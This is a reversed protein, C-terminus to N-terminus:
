TEQERHMTGRRSPATRPRPVYRASRRALWRVLSVSAMGLRSAAASISRSTKIAIVRQLATEVKPLTLEPLQSVWELDQETLCDRFAGWVDITDDACERIIRTLESQRTELPPIDIPVVGMPFPERASGDVCILLQVGSDPEQFARLAEPFNKPLRKARVCLTGGLTVHFADMSDKYNAPSRVSGRTNERRPDSVAFPASSGLVHRHIAFAIPVMDGRGHLRLIARGSSALRIARLAQDVTGIRKDSWGLLRSFFARLRITHPTEAILTRGGITVETGALLTVERTSVGDQKLGGIGTLDRIRWSQGEHILEADQIHYNNQRNSIRLATASAIRKHDSASARLRHDTLGRLPIVRHTGWERLRFVEDRLPSDIANRTNGSPIPDDDPEHLGTVEPLPWNVVSHNM